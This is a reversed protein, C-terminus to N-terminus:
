IVRGPAQSAGAKRVALSRLVQWSLGADWRGGPSAVLYLEVSLSRLGQRRPSFPAESLSPGLCIGPFETFRSDLSFDSFVLSAAKWTELPGIDAYLLGDRESLGSVSLGGGLAAAADGLLGAPPEQSSIALPILCPLALMPCASFSEAGRLRLGEIDRPCHPRPSAAILFLTERTIGDHTFIIFLAGLVHYLPSCLPTFSSGHSDFHLLQSFAQRRGKGLAGFDFAHGHALRGLVIDQIGIEAQYQVRIKYSARRAKFLADPEVSMRLMELRVRVAALVAEEQAVNGHM